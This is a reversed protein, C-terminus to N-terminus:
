RNEHSSTMMTAVMEEIVLGKKARIDM